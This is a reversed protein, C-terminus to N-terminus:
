LSREPTGRSASDRLSDQPPNVFHLEIEEAAAARDAVGPTVHGTSPAPSTKGEGASSNSPTRFRFEDALEKKTVVTSLSRRRFKSGGAGQKVAAADPAGPSASSPTNDRSGARSRGGAEAADPRPSTTWMHSLHSLHFSSPMHPLGLSIGRRRTGDPGDPEERSPSSIAALLDKIPSLDLKKIQRFTDFITADHKFQSQRDFEDEDEENESDETDFDDEEEEEEEEEREGDEMGGDEFEGGEEDEILWKGSDDMDSTVSVEAPNFDHEHSGDPSMVTQEKHEKASFNVTRSDVRRLTYDSGVRPIGAEVLKDSSSSRKVGKVSDARGTKESGRAGGSSRRRVKGEVSSISDRGAITSGARSRGRHRGNLGVTTARRRLPTKGSKLEVWGVAKDMAALQASLPFGVLKSLFAGLPGFILVMFAACQMIIFGKNLGDTGPLIRLFYASTGLTAQVTSRPLSYIWINLIYRWQWRWTQRHPPAYPQLVLAGFAIGILRGLVGLCMVIGMKSMLNSSLARQSINPGNKQDFAVSAGLLTCLIVEAFVWISRLAGAIDQIKQRDRLVFLMTVCSSFVVLEGTAFQIYQPQCLATMTFSSVLVVYVFDATHSGMQPNKKLRVWLFEYGGGGGPRHTSRWDIYLSNAWGLLIGLLMSFLLNVPLLVANLWLPQQKVWPSMTNDEKENYAQFFGFIAIALVAELPASILMQKPVTGYDRKTSGLAALMQNIIVSPGVPALASAFLGTEALTWGDFYHRGLFMWVCFEGCFPISSMVLTSLQNAYFDRVRLSLGARMIVIVLCLTKVERCGTLLLTPDLFNQMALGAMIYGLVAPLTLYTFVIAFIKGVVFILALSLPRSMHIPNEFIPLTESNWKNVQNMIMDSVYASPTTLTGCTCVYGATTSITQLSEPCGARTLVKECVIAYSSQYDYPPGTSWPELIWHLDPTMRNALLQKTVAEGASIPYPYICECTGAYNSIDNAIEPYGPCGISTFSNAQRICGLDQLIQDCFSDFKACVFNAPDYNALISPVDNIALALSLFLALATLVLAVKM